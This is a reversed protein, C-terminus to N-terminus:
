EGNSELKKSKKTTAKNNKHLTDHSKDDGKAKKAGFPMTPIKKLLVWRIASPPSMRGSTRNSLLDFFKVGM